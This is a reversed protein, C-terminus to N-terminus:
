GLVRKIYAVDQIIGDTDRSCHRGYELVIDAEPTYEKYWAFFRAFDLTGDGIRNHDDDRQYNNHVHYAVIKPALKAMVHPLDWGNIHAHGVDLLINDPENEAMAIFQQEDFLMNGRPLVGANEIVLPVNVLAAERRLERLNETAIDIMQQRQAPEMRCNNHHFVIYRSNLKGALALTQRFYATSRAYEGTGRAKSHETGYYPGHLSSPRQRFEGSYEAVLRNFADSQWEPFLEIGVSRDGIKALLSFVDPLQEPKYLNTSIFLSM